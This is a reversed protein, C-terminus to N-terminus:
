SAGPRGLDTWFSPSQIAASKVKRLSMAEHQMAPHIPSKVWTSTARQWGYTAPFARAAEGSRGAPHRQGASRFSV